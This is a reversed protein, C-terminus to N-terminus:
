ATAAPAGSSLSRCLCLLFFCFLFLFLSVRIRLGGAGRARGRGRGVGHGGPEQGDLLPVDLDQAAGLARHRRGRREGTKKETQTKHKINQPNTKLPLAPCLSFFLCFSPLALFCFLSLFFSVLLLFRRREEGRVKLAVDEVGEAVVLRIPPPDDDSGDFRDQVARLSNKVLEFVMHHLHSPVYPFTFAPDGYITVDPASGYERLCISRADNIADEAVQV